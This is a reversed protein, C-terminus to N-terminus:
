RCEEYYLRRLHGGFRGIRRAGGVGFELDEGDEPAAPGGGHAGDVFGDDAAFRRLVGRNQLHELDHRFLPEDAAVFLLAGVNVGGAARRFPGPALKGAVEQLAGEAAGGLSRFLTTYPFLTSKPPRRIM